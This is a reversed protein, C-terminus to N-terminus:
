SESMRCCKELRVKSQLRVPTACCHLLILLLRMRNYSLCVICGHVTQRGNDMVAIVTFPYVTGMLMHM